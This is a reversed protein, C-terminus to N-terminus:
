YDTELLWQSHRCPWRAEQHMGWVQVPGRLKCAGPLYQTFSDLGFFPMGIHFSTYPVPILPSVQSFFCHTIIVDLLLHSFQTM